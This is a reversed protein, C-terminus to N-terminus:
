KKVPVAQVRAEERAARADNALRYAVYYKYINRVYTTTEIGIKEATVVEVNDFWKNEDLGRKAAEKRMRAINGPGANYAAFAFLSRDAESFNADPFYRTMLQDMYKTGGHINPEILAIDGVKLEKGTEPMIQMVGIAGVHSRAEQRLQSEQYGQAALMLPDFQYQGGYKKFLAVTAEFRKTEADGTNNSIQKVRKYYQALRRDLSGQTKKYSAFFALIEAELKPSNKRIAWGIVGEDRLVLDDRLKIKPLVQVWMRGKWDDVVGFEFLGANLMELADEDELANPLAVLKVPQKGASKLRTNLAALSEAYSSSPRVHVTKGALDDLSTVEPANPGSVVLERVPKLDKAVAFDVLKKREETVTLNGAAIDGLGENLNTFFKDRTTTILVVTLPRKGLQKAYKTNLYREFDRMNEATIGREQGKDVFFLTRSYPLLVRIARRELMQDFDGLRPKNELSFKRPAVTGSTDQAFAIPAALATLLSALVPLLCRQMGALPRLWSLRAIHAKNM